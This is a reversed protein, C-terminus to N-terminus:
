IQSLSEVPVSYSPIDQTVVFFSGYASMNSHKYFDVTFFRYAYTTITIIVANNEKKEKVMEELSVVKRDLVRTSIPWVDANATILLADHFTYVILVSLLLLESLIRM